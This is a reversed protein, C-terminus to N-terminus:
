KKKKQRILERAQIRGEEIALERAENVKRELEKKHDEIGRQADAWAENVKTQVKVSCSFTRRGRQVCNIPKPELFNRKKQQKEKM